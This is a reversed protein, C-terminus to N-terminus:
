INTTTTTQKKILTIATMPSRVSISCYSHPRQFVKPCIRTAADGEMRLRM